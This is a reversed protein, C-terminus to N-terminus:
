SENVIIEIKVPGWTLTPLRRIRLLDAPATGVNAAMIVARRWFVTQADDFTDCVTHKILVGNKVTQVAFKNM